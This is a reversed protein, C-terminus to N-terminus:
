SGPAQAVLRRATMTAGADQGSHCGPYGEIEPCTAALNAMGYPNGSSSSCAAVSALSMGSFLLLTITRM